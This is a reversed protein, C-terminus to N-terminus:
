VLILMTCHNIKKSSFYFACRCSIRVPIKSFAALTFTLVACILLSVANNALFILVILAICLVMKVAPNLKHIFSGSPFYQGFTIDNLM